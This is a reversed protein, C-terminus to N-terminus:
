FQIITLWPDLGYLVTSKLSLILKLLVHLGIYQFFRKLGCNLAGGQVQSMYAIFDALLLGDECSLSIEAAHQCLFQPQTSM